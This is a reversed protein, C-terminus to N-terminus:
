TQDRPDLRAAEEAAREMKEVIWYGDTREIVREGEPFVHGDDPAVAFHTPNQRLREYRTVDIPVHETCDSKACECLFSQEGGTDQFTQALEELRENVERFLAQNHGLRRQREGLSPITAM